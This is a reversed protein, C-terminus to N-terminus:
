YPKRNTNDKTASTKAIVKTSRVSSGVGCERKARVAHSNVKAHGLIFCFLSELQNM